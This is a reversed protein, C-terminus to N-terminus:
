VETLLFKLVENNFHTIDEHKYKKYIHLKKESTINNYVAHQTLPPCDNDLESIGFLVKAKVKKAFNKTDILALKELVEKDNKGDVNFWRSYLNLENYGNKVNDKQFIEEFNSLFPYLSICKKVNTNLAATSIAFAGGQSAGYTIFNNEDIDPFNKAIKLLICSDIINKVFIMESPENNLGNILHGFASSSTHSIDESLGGQGRFDLALVDYGLACYSSKELWNRSSAPYGHFYFLAPIKKQPNKRRFNKNKLYKAHIKAGDFSKFFLSYYAIDDFTSFKKEKIVFDLEYDHVLKLKENWFNDFNM